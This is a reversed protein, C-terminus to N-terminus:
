QSTSECLNQMRYTYIFFHNQYHILAATLVFLHWIVHSNLHFDFRGPRYREPAKAVYILAGSIYTIGMLALRWFIPWMFDFGYLYQNYFTSLVHSDIYINNAVLSVRIIDYVLIYKSREVKSILLLFLMCHWSPHSPCCWIFWPCHFYCCSAMGFRTSACTNDQLVVCLVCCVVCSV